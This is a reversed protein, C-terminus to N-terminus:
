APCSWGERPAPAVLRDAEENGEFRCKRSNWALRGPVRQAVCGTLVTEMMATMCAQEASKGSGARVAALFEHQLGPGGPMEALSACAEHKDSELVKKEDRLAVYHRLGIDDAVLWVGRAGVLVCGSGPLPDFAAAVQPMQEAKPKWNGDYWDLTVPPQHRARAKFAFRLHSAKPYTEDQRETVDVAEVSQPMGLGLARFPINLLHCGVDGLAGTGFDHWGRWNYRHYVKDKFPRVPSGGLWLEWDLTVPVLDSGEPRKVGQPWVPRGTWAHVETVEGIIGSQLLEVARRFEATTSGQDGLRMTVGCADAKERLYRLEGLTRALPPEIYVHCGKEMAWAAQVAHSHDPTSIFVADVGREAEFLVRFDKYLRVGPSTVAVRERAALLASEDVDCLAAIREGAECVASWNAQGRGGVGIVAVNLREGAGKKRVGGRNRSFNLCGGTLLLGSGLASRLFNRRTESM